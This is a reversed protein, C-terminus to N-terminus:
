DCYVSTNSFIEFFTKLVHESYKHEYLETNSDLGYFIKKKILGSIFYDYPFIDTIYSFQFKTIQKKSLENKLYNIWRSLRFLTILDLENLFKDAPWFRTLRADKCNKPINPVQMKMGPIYYFPSIGLVLPLEALIAMTKLIEDLSQNPLGAIFHGMVKLGKKAAYRSIDKFHEINTNRHLRKLQEESGTAISLNLLKMGGKVLLDIIEEDLHEASLGNMAYLTIKDGFKQTIQTLLDMCHKRDFTFNDDEIDFASIGRDFADQMEEIIIEVPKLRLPSGFTRSVSCFRCGMPCGRSTSIMIAPEGAIHYKEVPLLNANPKINFSSILPNNNWAQEKNNWMGPINDSIKGNELISQVYRRFAEEGEGMICHDIDPCNTFLNHEPGVNQGGIIVRTNPSVSKIIGALTIIEQSYTYFNSSIACLDYHEEGFYQKIFEWSTGWHYYTHFVSIPSRDYPIYSKIANFTSPVPITQRGRGTVLDVINVKIPLSKLAGVLYTLGLPYTRQVTSYFDEIPAQILAIRM